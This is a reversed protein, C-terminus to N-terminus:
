KEGFDEKILEWRIFSLFDTKEQYNQVTYYVHDLVRHYRNKKSTIKFYKENSYKYTFVCKQPYFAVSFLFESYIPPQKKTKLHFAYNKICENHQFDDWEIITTESIRWELLEKAIKRIISNSHTLYKAVM